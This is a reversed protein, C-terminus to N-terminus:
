GAIEMVTITSSGGIVADVVRRNVAVTAGGGSTFVQVKYTTASTTSPSDLFIIPMTLYLNPSNLFSGITSNYTSGATSVNLATSNRVINAYVATSTDSGCFLQVQVLIKSTTATPTISVSLGTVDVPTSSTTTFADVKAASVVQLVAGAYMGQQSVKSIPM